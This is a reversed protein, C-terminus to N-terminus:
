GGASAAALELFELENDVFHGILRRLQYTKRKGAKGRLGFGWVELRGGAELWGRARGRLPEALIKKVRASMNPTSTAQIALIGGDPAYAILDVFGFLDQRIKAHSNWREVIGVTWGNKRLYAVTRQTPRVKAM